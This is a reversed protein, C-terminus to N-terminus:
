ISSNGSSDQANISYGISGVHNDAGRSLSARAPERRSQYTADARNRGGFLVSIGARVGFNSGFNPGAGYEVGFTARINDRLRHNADLFLTSQDPGGSRAFYNLGAVVTTRESLAQSYTATVSLRELKFSRLDGATRFNKSQYDFTAAIRRADSGVGSTLRYGGRLAFGTGDGTSVAGQFDFSGPIVQPVFQTEFGAVQIDEAIQVGGGVILIHSLAKRYHGI